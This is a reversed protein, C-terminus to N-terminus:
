QGNVPEDPTTAKSFLGVRNAFGVFATIVNFVMPAITAWTFKKPLEGAADFSVKVAELVLASKEAGIKTKGDSIKEVERVLDIIYPILQILLLFNGM